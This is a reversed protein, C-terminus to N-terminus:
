SSFCILKIGLFINKQLHFSVDIPNNQGFGERFISDNFLSKITKINVIAKLLGISTLKWRWFLKFLKSLDLGFLVLLYFSGHGNTTYFLTLLDKFYTYEAESPFNLILSFIVMRRRKFWTISSKPFEILSRIM